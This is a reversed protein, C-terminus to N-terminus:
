KKLKDKMQTQYQRLANELHELEEMMDAILPLLKKAEKSPLTIVADCIAAVDDNLTPLATFKGDALKHKATVIVQQTNKLKEELERFDSM